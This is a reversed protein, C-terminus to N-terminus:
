RELLSSRHPGSAMFKVSRASDIRRCHPRDAVANSTWLLLLILCYRDVKPRRPNRGHVRFNILHEWRRLCMFAWTFTIEM